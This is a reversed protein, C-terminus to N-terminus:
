KSGTLSAMSAKFRADLARADAKFAGPKFGNRALFTQLAKLREPFPPHTKSVKVASDAKSLRELVQYLAGPDYGASAALLVGGTDAEQEKEQGLGKELLIDLGANVYKGLSAGFDSGGRSLLRTATEGVSVDRDPMIAKYMHKETVHTIEHGLIGALESENRVSKLVGRTVFIYGGPTAFANAEEPKLIAFHYALEPRNAKISLTHGVLDVYHTLAPSSDDVGLTGALKAAMARGVDREEKVQNAFREAAVEHREEETACGAGALLLFILVFATSLAKSSRIM